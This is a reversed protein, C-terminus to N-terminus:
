DLNCDNEVRASARCRTGPHNGEPKTVLREEDNLTLVRVQKYSGLHRPLHNTGGIFREHTGLPARHICLPTKM